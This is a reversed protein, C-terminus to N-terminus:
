CTALRRFDLGYKRIIDTVDASFGVEGEDDLAILRYRVRKPKNPSSEPEERDVEPRAWPPPPGQWGIGDDGGTGAQCGNQTPLPRQGITSAQSVVTEATRYPFQNGADPEFGEDDEYPRAAFRSAGRGPM